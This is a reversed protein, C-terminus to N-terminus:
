CFLVHFKPTVSCSCVLLTTIPRSIHILVILQLAQDRKHTTGKATCVYSGPSHSDVLIMIVVVIVTVDNTLM